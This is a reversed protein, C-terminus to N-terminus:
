EEDGTFTGRFLEDVEDRPEPELGTVDAPMVTTAERRMLVAPVPSESDSTVLKRVDVAFIATLASWVPRQVGRPDLWDRELDSYAERLKPREPTSLGLLTRLRDVVADVSLGRSVRLKAIATEPAVDEAAAQDALAAVERVYSLAEHTPARAPQAALFRDILVCLDAREDEPARELTARPDPTAGRLWAFTFEEFLQHTADTLEREM